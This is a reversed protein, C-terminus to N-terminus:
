FGSFAHYGQERCLYSMTKCHEFTEGCWLAKLGALVQHLPGLMSFDNKKQILNMNKNYQQFLILCSSNMAFLFASM